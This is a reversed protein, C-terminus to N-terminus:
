HGKEYENENKMKLIISRESELLCNSVLKYCVMANLTM